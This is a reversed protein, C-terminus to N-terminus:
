LVKLTGEEIASAVEQTWYITSVAIVVQGPWELVWKSRPVQAYAAYAKETIDKLSQIMMDQVQLLWKEVMGQLVCVCVCM